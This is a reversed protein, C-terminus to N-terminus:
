LSRAYTFAANQASRWSGHSDVDFTRDLGDVEPDPHLVEYHDVVYRYHSQIIGINIGDLHQQVTVGNPFTWTAGYEGSRSETKTAKM